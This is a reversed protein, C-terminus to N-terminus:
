SPRARQRQVTTETPRVMFPLPPAQSRPVPPAATETPEVSLGAGAAIEVLQGMLLEFEHAAAGKDTEALALLTAVLQKSQREAASTLQKASRNRQRPVREVAIAGKTVREAVMGGVDNGARIWSRVSYLATRAFNTRRNLEGARAEGGPLGESCARLVGEYLREHVAVLAALQAKVGGEDLRARRGRQQPEVGLERQTSLWLSQLYRQQGGAVEGRAALIAKALEYAGDATTILKTKM